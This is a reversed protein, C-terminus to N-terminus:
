KRPTGRERAAGDREGEDNFGFPNADGGGSTREVRLTQKFTQGNVVLTVLYDGTSATFSGGAGGFGGFGGRGGRGGGGPVRLGIIEFVRRVKDSEPGVPGGRGGGGFEAAAGGRGGAAEGPRACFPEWQTLPMHCAAGGRGGGGAGGRGGRGGAPAAPAAPPALLEQVRALATTDYKARRLSDIVAPARVVRLISDRRESASQVAPAAQVPRTGSFNWTVTHLGPTGPGTMNAITDGAVDTIYLRAAGSGSTVRYSIAAGYAPSPTSFFLQANGNGSAALTPGEGWQFGTKPEFLYAASAITKTTLQQLPAIDAIWFGRGHTAAILEGDRPHIKLDYVPVSPLNAAFRTWHAGRDLSAYVSLSSGVFLLNPNKVDERIVHLYDAPSDNPLGAALSHFTRGGDTTAYVYPKFDNYRHNDFTVYFTLTDFHSPEIRSVYLEAPLGPFRGSLNEWAGGDNLSKWVNGDDTGAYLLGPKVYSEALAVITGYTEAGTADLTIGGTWITSTDIKEKLKKSLDPSILHFSEAQDSSKLVRNGAFYVVKSNHPSLILPSNWNYRMNLDVSDQKQQARLKDVLAKTEKSMPKTPDGAVVAISDDWLKYQPQWQPKQFSKREGTKINVRSASGGQSESYVISPDMQDQATYFGDGGSVTFWYANGVASKRKSPGCWGGNDQAGGCIYYPVQMDYSVEYFQAIPLNQPQFWNGGKDMTLAIGGDHALAIREPDHPDIWIAHDDVHVQQAAGRSTKGGDDSVQLQTSSFYVRNPDRPDVAVNSYYFPRTNINNQQTWTKGGDASRYLGNAKPSNSPVYSGDASPDAAEVMTYMVDPDSQSIAIRIRGKTGAPFGNGRVATWTAGADTSKWLDSGPGGSKLSYPTRYMQWSAAWVVNPNRPDLKVDVFGTKDNIFKVLKWTNGGDETKYIGREPNTGWVAGLAAVYVINPNTPNVVIGGIHQTKELGMLKWTIGGDTSKYIGGGPEISNRANPEGTGAWVQMTDSPAIALMGMSIVRKDDFVPRWTNGNNMSKWIGGGAAAVFLTKSPGPIGVVDSIRGMFNANGVNRWPLGAVAASDLTQAGSFAAAAAVAASALSLCRAIRTM